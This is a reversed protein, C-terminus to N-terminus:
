GVSFSYTVGKKLKERILISLETEHGAGVVALIKTDPHRNMIDVLASAMHENREEVLVKYVNPYRNKVLKLVKAILKESPVKRLDMKRFEKMEKSFPGKVVDIGFRLREKWSLRQSLRKMTRELHQDILAIRAKEEMAAVLATRMESGPQVGVLRGIRKQLFSAVALFLFGKVGTVKIMKLSLKSRSGHLLAHARRPDLELAVIEPKKSKIYKEVEDMSEQAIHSTGIIKLNKVIMVSVTTLM